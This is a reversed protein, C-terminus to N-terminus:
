WRNLFDALDAGASKRSTHLDKLHAGLSPVARVLAAVSERSLEVVEVDGCAQATYGRTESLGLAEGEGIVEGKRAVGLEVATEAAGVYMRVEGKLVLSLPAGSEGELFIRGRDPFRKGTAQSLLARLSEEPLLRVLAASRLEEDGLVREDLQVRKLGLKLVPTADPADRNQM